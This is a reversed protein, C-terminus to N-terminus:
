IGMEQEVKQKKPTSNQENPVNRELVILLLFAKPTLCGRKSSYTSILMTAFSFGKFSNVMLSCFQFGLYSALLSKILMTENIYIQSRKRGFIVNM